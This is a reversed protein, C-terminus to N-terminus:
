SMTELCGIVVVMFSIPNVKAIISTAVLQRTLDDSPNTRLAIDMGATTAALMLAPPASPGSVPFLSTVWITVDKGADARIDNAVDSM